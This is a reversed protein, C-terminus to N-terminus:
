SVCSESQSNKLALNQSKNLLITTVSVWDPDTDHCESLTLQQVTICLHYRVWDPCMIKEGQNYHVKSPDHNVHTLKHCMM